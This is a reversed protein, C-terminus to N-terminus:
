PLSISRFINVLRQRRSCWGCLIDTCDRCRDNAQPIQINRSAPVSLNDSCVQILTNILRDMHSEEPSASCAPPSNMSNPSSASTGPPSASSNGSGSLSRRYANALQLSLFRVITIPYFHFNKVEYNFM